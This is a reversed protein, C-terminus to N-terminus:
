TARPPDSKWKSFAVIYLVILNVLPVIMLIALIPQFGAKKFIIWCPPITLVWLLSLVFFAILNVLLRSRSHVPAAKITFNVRAALMARTLDDYNPPLIAHFQVEPSFKMHCWLENGVILVDQVEGNQVKAFLGSYSIEPQNKNTNNRKVCGSCLMSLSLITAWVLFTRFVSPM